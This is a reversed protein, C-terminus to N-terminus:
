SPLWDLLRRFIGFFNFIRMLRGTKVTQSARDPTHATYNTLPQHVNPGKTAGLVEVTVSAKDLVKVTMLKVNWAVGTVGKANNGAAGVVGAVLTGHSSRDM